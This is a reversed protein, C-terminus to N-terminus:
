RRTPGYHRRYARGYAAYNGISVHFIAAAQPLTIVFPALHVRPIVDLIAVAFVANLM